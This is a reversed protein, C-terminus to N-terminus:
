ETWLGPSGALHGLPASSGLHPRLLAVLETTDFPKRLYGCAAGERGRRSFMEEHGTIFIIPLAADQAALIDQLEFGSLGPLHVDLVVCAPEGNRLRHLFDEASDFTQARIGNAKLARALATRLSADDDVIGVWSEEQSM